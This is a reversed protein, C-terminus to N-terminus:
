TGPGLLLVQLQEGGSFEVKRVHESITVHPALLSELLGWSASPLDRCLELEARCLRCFCCDVSSRNAKQASIRPVSSYFRQLIASQLANLKMSVMIPCNTFSKKNNNLVFGASVPAWNTGSRVRALSVPSPSHGLRSRKANKGIMSQSTSVKITVSFLIQLKFKGSDGRIQDGPGFGCASRTEGFWIRQRIQSPGLRSATKTM